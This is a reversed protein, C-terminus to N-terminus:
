PRAQKELKEFETALASKQGLYPQAERVV